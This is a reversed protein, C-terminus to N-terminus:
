WVSFPMLQLHNPGTAANFSASGHGAYGEVYVYAETEIYTIVEYKSSHTFTGNIFWTPTYTGSLSGSPGYTHNYTYTYSYNNAWYSSNSYTGVDSDNYYYVGSENYPEVWYNSPGIENGNSVNELYSYGYMYVESEVECYADSYSYNYWTYGYNIHASYSYQVPCVLASTVTASDTAAAVINWTVNVGGTGTPIKVPAQVEVEGGAEAYSEFTSGGRAKSCTAAAVSSSSKGLGTLKSWHPLAGRASACGSLDKYLNPSWVAGRFANPSAVGASAVSSLAMITVIAVAGVGGAAATWRL